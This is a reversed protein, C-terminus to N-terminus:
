VRTPPAAALGKETIFSDVGQLFELDVERLGGYKGRDWGGGRRVSGM